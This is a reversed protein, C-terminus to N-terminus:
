QLNIDVSFLLQFSFNGSGTIPRAITGAVPPGGNMGASRYYYYNWNLKLKNYNLLYYICVLVVEEETWGRDETRVILRGAVKRLKM